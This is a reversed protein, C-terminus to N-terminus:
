EHKKRKSLILLLIVLQASIATQAIGMLEDKRDEHMRGFHGLPSYGTLWDENLRGCTEGAIKEDRFPATAEFSYRFYQGPFCRDKALYVGMDVDTFGQEELYVKGAFSGYALFLAVLLSTPVAILLTTILNKQIRIILAEMIEEKTKPKTTREKALM